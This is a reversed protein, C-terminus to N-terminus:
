PLLQVVVDKLGMQQAALYRPYGDVLSLTDKTVTIHRSFKGYREYYDKYNQVLKSQPPSNTFRPPVIIENLSVTEIPLSLRTRKKIETTISETVSSSLVPSVTSLPTASSLTNVCQQLETLRCTLEEIHAWLNNQEHRLHKIESLLFDKGSTTLTNDSPTPLAKKPPPAGYLGRYIIDRLASSTSTDLVSAYKKLKEVIEEEIRFSLVPM